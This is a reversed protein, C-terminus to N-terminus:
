AWVKDKIEPLPPEVGAPLIQHANLTMAVLTYYGVLATLEVVGVVDWIKLAAAYSKDSVMTSRHLETCFDYIVREDTQATEPVRDLRIDEIVRESLGDETRDGRPHAM